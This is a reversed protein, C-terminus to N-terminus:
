DDDEEQQQAQAARQAALAKAVKDTVENVNRALDIALNAQRLADDFEGRIRYMASNSRGRPCINWLRWRDEKTPHRILIFSHPDGDTVEVNIFAHRENARVVDRQTPEIGAIVEKNALTAEISREHLVMRDSPGVEMALDFIDRGGGGLANALADFISGGRGLEIAIMGEGFKRTM